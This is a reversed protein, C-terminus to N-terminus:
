GGTEGEPEGRRRSAQDASIQIEDFRSLTLKQDREYLDTDWIEIKELVGAITAQTTLQAHERLPPPILIRGQGDIPCEAAGSVMFRQLARVDPQLSPMASLDREIAEWDDRPYLELHDKHRTLIPAKESRRLLETRFGAPISVRGKKDITHDHRGRFM